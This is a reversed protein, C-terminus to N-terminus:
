VVQQRSSTPIQSAIKPPPLPASRPLPSQCPRATALALVFCWRVGRGPAPSCLGPYGPPFRRPYQRRREESSKADQPHLDLFPARRLPLSCAVSKQVLRRGHCFSVEWGPCVRQRRERIAAKRLARMDWLPLQSRGRWRMTEEWLGAGMPSVAKGRRSGARSQRM